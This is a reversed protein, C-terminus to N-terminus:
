FAAATLTIILHLHCTLSFVDVVSLIIMDLDYIVRLRGDPIHYVVTFIFKGKSPQRFVFKWCIASSVGVSVFYLLTQCIIIFHRFNLLIFVVIKVPFNEVTVKLMFSLLCFSGWNWCTLMHQGDYCQCGLVNFIGSSRCDQEDFRWWLLKCIQTVVFLCVHRVILSVTLMFILHLLGFYIYTVHSHHVSFAKSSPLMTGLHHRCNRIYNSCSFCCCRIGSIILAMWKHWVCVCVIVM